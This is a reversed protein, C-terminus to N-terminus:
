TSGIFCAIIEPTTANRSQCLCQFEVTVKVRQVNFTLFLLFRLMMCLFLLLFHIGKMVSFLAPEPTSCKAIKQFCVRSQPFEAYSTLEKAAIQSCLDQHM